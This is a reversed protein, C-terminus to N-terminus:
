RLGVFIETRVQFQVEIGIVYDLCIIGIEGLAAVPGGNRKARVEVWKVGGTNTLLLRLDGMVYNGWRQVGNNLCHFLLVCRISLVVPLNEIYCGAEISM